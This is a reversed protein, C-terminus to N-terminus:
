QPGFFLYPQAGGLQLLTQFGGGNIPLHSKPDDVSVKQINDYEGTFSNLIPLLAKGDEIVQAYESSTGVNFMRIETNEPGQIIGSDRGSSIINDRETLFINRGDMSAENLADTGIQNNFLFLESQGMLNEEMYTQAVDEFGERPQLTVMYGLQGNIPATLM